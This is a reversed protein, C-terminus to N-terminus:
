IAARIDTLTFDDGVYLLPCGYEEALAYAFSDCINLKALHFGKGWRQYADAAALAREETLPIITPGLTALLDQMPDLLRKRAAVILMESLSGASILLTANQGLVKEVSAEGEENLLIAFLASGDVVIM